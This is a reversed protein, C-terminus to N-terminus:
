FDSNEKLAYDEGLVDAIKSENNIKNKTSPKYLKGMNQVKAFASKQVWKGEEKILNIGLFIATGDPLIDNVESPRLFEKLNNNFSV